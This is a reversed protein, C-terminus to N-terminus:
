STRTPRTRDGWGGRACGGRKASGFGEAFPDGKERNEYSRKRNAGPGGIRIVRIRINMNGIGHRVARSLCPDGEGYRYPEM